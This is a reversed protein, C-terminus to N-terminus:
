TPTGDNDPALRTIYRAASLEIFRQNLESLDRLLRETEPANRNDLASALGARADVWKTELERVGSSAYDSGYISRMQDETFVGLAEAEREVRRFTAAIEPFLDREKSRLQESTLGAYPDFVEARFRANSRLLSFEPGGVNPPALDRVLTLTLQTPQRVPRSSHSSSVESSSEQSRPRRKRRIATIVPRYLRSRDWTTLPEYVPEFLEERCIAAFERDLKHRWPANESELARLIDDWTRPRPGEARGFLSLTYASTAGYGERVVASRPIGEAPDFDGELDLVLRHCPFYDDVGVADSFASAIQRASRRLRQDSVTPNLPGRLWDDSVQWTERFLPGLLSTDIKAPDAPVGQVDGLPGPPEGEPDFICAIARCQSEEFRQFLGVEYLCWDWVHAPTTFILILLHSNGLAKRVESRWNDAAVIDAGSVWCQVRDEGDIRGLRELERQVVEAVSRDVHKHSIFIQFKDQQLRTM